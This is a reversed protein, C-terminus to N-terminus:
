LYLREGGRDIAYDCFPYNSCGCFATWQHWGNWVPIKIGEHCVPCEEYLGWDYLSDCLEKLDREFEEQEITLEKENRKLYAKKIKEWKLPYLSYGNSRRIEKVMEWGLKEFAKERRIMRELRFYVEPEQEKDTESLYLELEKIDM